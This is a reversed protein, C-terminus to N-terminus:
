SGKTITRMSRTFREWEVRFEEDSLRKEDTLVRSQKLLQDERYRREELEQQAWQADETDSM